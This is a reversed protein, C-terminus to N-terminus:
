HRNVQVPLVPLLVLRNRTPVALAQKGHQAAQQRVAAQPLMANIGDGVALAGTRKGAQAYAGARHLAEGVGTPQGSDTYGGQRQLGLGGQAGPGGPGVLAHQRQDVGADIFHIECGTM